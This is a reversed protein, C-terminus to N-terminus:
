PLKQVEFEKDTLILSWADEPGLDMIVCRGGRKCLHMMLSSTSYRRAHLM